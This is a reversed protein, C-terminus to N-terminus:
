KRYERVSWRVFFLYPAPFSWRQKNGIVIGPHVNWKQADGNPPPIVLDDGLLFQVPDRNEPLRNRHTPMDHHVAAIPSRLQFRELGPDAVQLVSHVQARVGLPGSGPRAAEGGELVAGELHRVLGARRDDGDGDRPGGADHRRVPHEGVPWRPVNGAHHHVLGHLAAVLGFLLQRQLDPQGHNRSQGVILLWHCFLDVVGAIDDTATATHVVAAFIFVVLLFNFLAPPNM